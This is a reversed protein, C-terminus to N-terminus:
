LARNQIKKYKRILHNLKGVFIKYRKYYFNSKTKWVLHIKTNLQTLFRMKKIWHKIEKTKRSLMKQHLFNYKDNVTPISKIIKKLELNNFDRILKEKDSNSYDILKPKKADKSKLNLKENILFCIFPWKSKWHSEM